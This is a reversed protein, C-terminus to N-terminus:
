ATIRELTYTDGSVGRVRAVASVQRGAPTRTLCVILHVNSAILPRAVELPMPTPHSPSVGRVCAELRTLTTEPTSAHVTTLGNHGTGWADLLDVGEVGRVEGVILRDPRKRLARKLLTAMPVGESTYMPTWLPSTACLERTDEISVIREGAMLSLCTNALTTKGTNHTVTFDGLLYLGDKDLEFGYFPAHNSILEITFGCVAARKKQRRKPARKREIRCPIISCDGSISVRWYSGEFHGHATACGKRSPSVKARLGVSRALYTVDDALAKSVSLFDFGGGAMHGDTDM